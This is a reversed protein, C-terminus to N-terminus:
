APSPCLYRLATEWRFSKKSDFYLLSRLVLQCLVLLFVLRLARFLASGDDATFGDDVDISPEAELGFETSGNFGLFLGSGDDVPFGDDVDILHDISGEFGSEASGDFGLFLASGDDVSSGDDM